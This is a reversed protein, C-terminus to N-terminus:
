VWFQPLLEKFISLRLLCPSSAAPSFLLLLPLLYSLSSLPQIDM